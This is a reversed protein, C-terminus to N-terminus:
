TRCANCGVTILANQTYGPVISVLASVSKGPQTDNTRTDLAFTSVFVHALWWIGAEHAVRDVIQQIQLPDLRYTGICQLKM